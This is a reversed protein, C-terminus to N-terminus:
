LTQPGLETQAADTGGLAGVALLAVGVIVALVVVADVAVAAAVRVQEAGGGAAVTDRAIALRAILGAL